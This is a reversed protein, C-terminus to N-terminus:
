DFKAADEFPLAPDFTRRAEEPVFDRTGRKLIENVKECAFEDTRVYGKTVAILGEKRGHGAQASIAWGPVDHYLLWTLFHHRFEHFQLGPFGAAAVVKRFHYHFTGVTYSGGDPQPYLFEPHNSGPFQELAAKAAPTFAVLRTKEGKPRKLEGNRSVQAVVRVREAELDFHSRKLAFTESMRLGLFASMAILGAIENRNRIGVATDVVAIIARVEADGLVPWETRGTTPPIDVGDLPSWQIQHRARADGLMVKAAMISSRPQTEAWDQCEEHSLERLQKEGFEDVFRKIGYTYTRITSEQRSSQRTLWRKSYSAVTMRRYAAGRLVKARAEFSTKADKAEVLTPYSGVWVSARRSPDYAKVGWTAGRGRASPRRYIGPCNRVPAYKTKKKSMFTEM